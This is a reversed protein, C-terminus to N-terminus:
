SGMARSFAGGRQRSDAVAQITERKFRPLLSMMEARVTQSVGASVQIVQHVVTGGGGGRLARLPIVTGSRGPAFIEPENEGVLYGKGPEVPGGAARPGGFSLFGLGGPGVGPAAGGGGGFLSGAFSLGAGLLDGLISGGGKQTQTLINLIEALVAKLVDLLSGGQLVANGLANVLEVGMDQAAQETDEIERTLEQQAKKSEEQSARINEREAVLTRIADIEELTLLRNEEIALSQARRVAIEQERQLESLHLLEVEERLGVLLEAVADTQEKVEQTQRTRSGGGTKVPKYSGGAAPETYSSQAGGGTMYGGATIPPLTGSVTGLQQQKIEAMRKVADVLATPMGSIANIIEGTAIVIKNKLKEIEREAEALATVTEESMVQGAQRAADTLGDWGGALQELLPVLRVGSRGFFDAAATQKETENSLGAIKRAAEAALDAVPRLNGGADYLSIGLADFASQAEKSGSAAEGIKRTFADFASQAQGAALGTEAAAFNLAQLQDTTIGMQAATDQLQDALRLAGTALSALGLGGLVPALLGVARRFGNVAGQVGDWSGKMERAARATEGKVKDLERRLPASDSKIKVLIDSADGAM